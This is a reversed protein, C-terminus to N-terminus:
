ASKHVRLRPPLRFSAKVDCGAFEGVGYLATRSSRERAQPEIVARGAGLGFAPRQGKLQGAALRMPDIAVTRQHLEAVAHRGFTQDNWAFGEELVM